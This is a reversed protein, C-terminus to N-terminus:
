LGELREYKKPLKPVFWSEPSTSIYPPAGRIVFGRPLRNEDALSYRGQECLSECFYFREEDSEPIPYTFRDFDWYQTGPGHNNVPTRDKSSASWKGSTESITFNRQGHKEFTNPRWHVEVNKAGAPVGFYWSRATFHAAGGPYSAVPYVVKNLNTELIYLHSPYDYWRKSFFPGSDMMWSLTYTGSKDDAPIEIKKRMNEHWKVEASAAIKGDPDFVAFNGGRFAAFHISFDQDEEEFLYVSQTKNKWHPFSAANPHWYLLGLSPHRNTPLNAPKSNERESAASRRSWTAAMTGIMRPMSVVRFKHAGPQFSRRRAWNDIEHDVMNKGLKLFFPDKTLEYGYIAWNLTFCKGGPLGAGIETATRYCEISKQKIEEDGTAKYYRFLGQFLWNWYWSNAVVSMAKPEADKSNKSLSAKFDFDRFLNALSSAHKLFREDWTAMYYFSLRDLLGGINRTWNGYPQGAILRKIHANGGEITEDFQEAWMRLNDWARRDGTLWYQYICDERDPINGAAMAGGPYGYWGGIWHLESNDYHYIEGARRGTSEDTHHRMVQDSSYLTYRQAYRLWRVNGTRFYQIWPFSGWYYHSKPKARHWQPQGATNEFTLDRHGAIPQTLYFHEHYAGWDWWGYYHVNKAHREMMDLLTYLYSEEAAFNKRDEPHHPLFDLARSQTQWDLDAHAYVPKHVLDWYQRTGIRWESAVGFFLWLEHTKAAGQANSQRLKKLIEELRGEGVKPKKTVMYRKQQENLFYWMGDWSTDWLRGHRPWLHVSAAGDAWELEFPYQQWADKIVAMLSYQNTYTRLFGAAKEGHRSIKGDPLNRQLWEFRRHDPSDMVQFFGKSNEVALPEAINRNVMKGVVASVGREVPRGTMPLRIGIDRLRDQNSHGTFIFTHELRVDSKDKFFHARVSFRCFRENKKNTYWGDAKITARIPGNEELYVTARKDLDARFIGRTEHEIYLGSLSDKRISPTPTVGEPPSKRIEINQFLDFETRSCKAKLAGTNIVIAEDNKQGVSAGPEIIERRVDEGFQLRYRRGREALFDILMWRIGEEGNADWTATEATQFSILDGNEDVLQILDDGHFSGRPFPVGCKVPRPWLVPGADGKVIIPIEGAHISFCWLSVILLSKADTQSHPSKECNEEEFAM